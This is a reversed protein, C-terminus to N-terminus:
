TSCFVEDAATCSRGKLGTNESPVLVWPQM